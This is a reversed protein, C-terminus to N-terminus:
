MHGEEKLKKFRSIEYEMMELGQKTYLGMYPEESHEEWLQMSDELHKLREELKEITVSPEQKELKEKLLDAYTKDTIELELEVAAGKLKTKRDKETEAKKAQELKRILKEITQNTTM